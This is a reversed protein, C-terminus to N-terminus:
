DYWIKVSKELIVDSYLLITVNQVKCSATQERDKKEIKFAVCCSLIGTKRIKLIRRCFVNIGCGHEM